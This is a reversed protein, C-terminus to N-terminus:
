YEKRRCVRVSVRYSLYLLLLVAIPAIWVLQAMVQDWSISATLEPFRERVLTTGALILVTPAAYCLIMMLRAREAGFRFLLPLMVAGFFLAIALYAGHAALNEGFPLGKDPLFGGVVASIILSLAAGGATLLVLLLYKARVLDRRAVPLTLAYPTWHALDDYSFTTTAVMSVLLVVVASFSAAGATPIFLAAYVVLLLALTRFYKRLNLLDKLLLGTM